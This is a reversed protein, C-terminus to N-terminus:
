LAFLILILSQHPTTPKVGCRRTEGRSTRTLSPVTPALGSAPSESTAESSQVSRNKVPPQLPQKILPQLSQKIPSQLSNPSFSLLNWRLKVTIMSPPIPNSAAIGYGASHVIKAITFEPPIVSMKHEGQASFFEAQPPSKKTKPATM